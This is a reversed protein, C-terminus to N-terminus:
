THGLGKKASATKFGASSLAHETKKFYLEAQYIQGNLLGEEGMSLLDEADGVDMGRSRAQDIEGKLKRYENWYVRDPGAAIYNAWSTNEEVPKFGAHNLAEMAKAFDQRAESQNGNQLADSGGDYLGVAASTLFAEDQARTIQKRVYRAEGWGGASANWWDSYEAASSNARNGSGATAKGSYAFAPAGLMTLTVVLVTVAIRKIM